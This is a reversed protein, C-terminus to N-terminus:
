NLTATRAIDTVAATRAIDAVEATLPLALVTDFVVLALGQDTEIAIGITLSKARGLAFATDTEDALGAALARVVAAALAADSESALGVSRAKARGLALAADTESALGLPGGALVVSFAEDTETAIGIALAKAATLALAADTETALGIALARAATLALATDTEAALGVSRAKARAVALASDTEAALGIAVADGTGATVALATDAEAALGVARAKARGAALAADTETALGVTRAKARTLAFATDAEAALGVARAKARTLAFATDTETVLGIAVPGAAAAAPRGLQLRQPGLTARSPTASTGTLAATRGGILEPEPSIRGTMPWYHLLTQPAILLPSVRGAYAAADAATLAGAHIALDQVRGDFFFASSARGSIYLTQSSWSGGPGVDSTVTITQASGDVWAQFATATVQDLVVVVDHWAAASPSPMTALKYGAGTNVSLEWGTSVPFIGFTGANSSFNASHEFLVKVTGLADWWVRFAVTIKGTGAPSLDVSTASAADSSGNFLRAM